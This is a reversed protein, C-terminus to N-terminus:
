RPVTGYPALPRKEISASGARVVAAGVRGPPAARCYAKLTKSREKDCHDPVVHRDTAEYAINLGGGPLGAEHASPAKIIADWVM